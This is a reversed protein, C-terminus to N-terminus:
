DRSWCRALTARRRQCRGNADVSLLGWTTPNDLALWPERNGNLGRQMLAHSSARWWPRDGKSRACRVDHPLALLSFPQCKCRATTRWGRDATNASGSTARELGRPLTSGGGAFSPRRGAFAGIVSSERVAVSLQHVTPSLRRAGAGEPVRRFELVIVRSPRSATAYLRSSVCPAERLAARRIICRPRSSSPLSPVSSPFFRAAFLSLVCAAHTIERSRGCVERFPTKVASATASAVCWSSPSSSSSSTQSARRLWWLLVIM